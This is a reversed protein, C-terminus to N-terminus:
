VFLKHLDFTEGPVLGPHGGVSGSTESQSQGQRGQPTIHRSCCSSRLHGPAVAFDWQQPHAEHAIHRHRGCCGRSLECPCMFVWVYPPLIGEVDLQICAPGGLHAEAKTAHAAQVATTTAEGAACGSGRGRFVRVGVLTKCRGTRYNLCTREQPVM